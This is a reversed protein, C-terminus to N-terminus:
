SIQNIEIMKLGKIKKYLHIKVISNNHKKRYIIKYILVKEIVVKMNYQNQEIILNFEKIRKKIKMKM